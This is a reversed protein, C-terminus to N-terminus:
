RIVYTCVYMFVYMRLMSLMDYWITAYRMPMVSMVSCVCLFAMCVYCVYKVYTCVFVYMGCMRVCCLMCACCLM